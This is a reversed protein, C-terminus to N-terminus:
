DIVEGSPATGNKELRLIAIASSEVKADKFEAYVNVQNELFINRNRLLTSSDIRATIDIYKIQGKSLGGLDLTLSRDRTEISTISKKASDIPKSNEDLEYWDNIVMGEPLVDTLKVNSLSTKGINNVRILYTVIDGSSNVAWNEVSIKSGYINDAGSSVDQSEYTQEPGAQYTFIGEFGPCNGTTCNASKGTVVKICTGSSCDFAVNNPLLMMPQLTLKTGDSPWGSDLGEIPPITGSCACPLWDFSGAAPARLDFDALNNTIDLKKGKVLGTQEWDIKRSGSKNTWGTSDRFDLVGEDVIAHYNFNYKLGPRRNMDVSAVVTINPSLYSQGLGPGRFGSLDDYRIKKWASIARKNKFFGEGYFESIGKEGNFGVNQDHNVSANEYDIFKGEDNTKGYYYTVNDSFKMTGNVLYNISGTKLGQTYGSEQLNPDRLRNYFILTANENKCNFESILTAECSIILGILLLVIILGKM